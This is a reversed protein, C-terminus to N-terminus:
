RPCAWIKLVAWNEVQPIAMISSLSSLLTATAGKELKSAARGARDAERGLATGPSAGDEAALNRARM